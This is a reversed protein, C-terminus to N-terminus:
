GLERAPRSLVGLCRVTAVVEFAPIALFLGLFEGLGMRRKPKPEM